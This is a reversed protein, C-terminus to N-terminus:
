GECPVYLEKLKNENQKEIKEVQKIQDDTTAHLKTRKNIDELIFLEEIEKNDM